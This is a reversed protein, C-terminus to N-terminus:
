NRSTAARRKDLEGLVQDLRTAMRDAATLDGAYDDSAFYEDVLMRLEAQEAETMFAIGGSMLPGKFAIGGPM